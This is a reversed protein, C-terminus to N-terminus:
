KLQTKVWDIWAAEFADWNIGEFAKEMAKKQDSTALMTERYTDLIAAWSAEFKKGLVEPGRRLFDIMSYGQAYHDVARPGYYKDHNWSVIERLPIYTKRAVQPVIGMKRGKEVVYTWKGGQRSFGGYYDGTGEDFWRHLEAKEGFYSHAYQHWGEHRVTADVDKKGMFADKDDFVVLEKSGPNFWGVVGPPTNGYKMFDEYNNCVRFVSYLQLMKDHPPYDKTYLQRVDELKDVLGRAFKFGEPRKEPKKYNWQYLVIYDPTTFYDWGPINAINEKARDLGAKKQPTDAFEDKKADMAADAAGEDAGASPELSQVMTQLWKMHKESPKTDRKGTVPVRGVIAVEREPLDYVAAVSYWTLDEGSNSKQVDAFEWYTSAPSKAHPKTPKAKVAFTREMLMPDKETVWVHWNPCTLHKKIAAELDSKSPESETTTSGEGAPKKPEDTKKPFDLVYMYWEYTGLRGHIFDGADKPKYQVKMNPHSEGLKLPIAYLKKHVLYRIRMADNQESRYESADQAALPACSALVFVAIQAKQM